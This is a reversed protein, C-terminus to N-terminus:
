FNYVSDVWLFGVTTKGFKFEKKTQRIFVIKSDSNEVLYGDM